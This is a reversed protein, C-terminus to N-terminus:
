PDVVSREPRRLSAVYSLSRESSSNDSYIMVLAVPPLNCVAAMECLFDAKVKALRDELERVNGLTSWTPVAPLIILNNILLSGSYATSM